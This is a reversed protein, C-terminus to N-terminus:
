QIIFDTFLVETIGTKTDEDLLKNLGSAIREQLEQKGKATLLESPSEDSLMLIIHHQLKPKYENFRTQAEPTAYELVITTMLFRMEELTKGINVTFQMPAPAAGGGGHEAAILPPSCVLLAALGLSRISSSLRPKM